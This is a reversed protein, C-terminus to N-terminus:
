FIDIINGTNNDLLNNGFQDKLKNIANEGTCHSLALLEINNEKLFELTKNLRLEDAESLHSGGIVSYIPMNIRKMITKLINVIGIHSCGCIVCLGKEHKFALVIEDSFTDKIYKEDKKVYFKKNSYEFDTSKEFNSFLIIDKTIELLDDNIYKIDINNKYIFKEDFSNGNYKYINEEVLKYKKNFFENGVILKPVKYINEVLKRFGGSHDYHGHSLIVYHLNNLNINLKEANKIFDGSKGTDFLLKKGKFEIYLSLGHENILLKDKDSSNEILTTIRLGM